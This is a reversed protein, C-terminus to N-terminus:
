GIKAGKLAQSCQCTRKQPMKEIIKCILKQAKDINTKFVNAVKEFSVPEVKKAAVLGVDYDTILAIATYCLELERALIAEPYQTMNIVQWDMKTFWESEAQTSFRPGQIVVVTGQSHIKIGLKKGCKFVLQSLQPCYPYAASVHTTVPGDFYTDKRNKTRDIFQDLVVFDGPLIDSQLSGAAAVAIIKKVGLSKLAYINARYPIKHPPLGHAKNHRPLFAVRQNAIEGLAIKDSPSGYPTEVKVAKVKKMLAYFGSGGLVGIETKTKTKM